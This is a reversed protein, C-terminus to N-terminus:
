PVVDLLQAESAGAANDFTVVMVGKAPTLPWEGSNVEIPVSASGHPGVTAFGGQSIASTWPNFRALGTGSKPPAGHFVDYSTYHYSLRPHATRSLCKDGPLCLQDTEVVLLATSSDTPASAAFSTGQGTALSFVFTNFVGSFDGATVIGDDVGVILYDDTGDGDVDVGIDFENVSANSWRNYGNVAFVMVAVDPDATPFSQVGIARVDNTANGPVRPDFLGWAYFDADGAIVGKNSVTATTTPNTGTTLKALRTSVDSLAHPVLYYPVRLAVNANDSASAPTLQVLGSVENFRSSNGATTAPVRLQVVLQADDNAPVTITSNSFSVSHASGAANAQAVKFTAPTSGNNHLKLQTTGIFDRSLEQYGFNLAVGLRGSSSRAVVQSKTSSAPQVLGTGGRSTGYDGVGSPIGTNLMAAKIDAVSWTPHAQRTLAAAGAVHPSAMSTGSLFEGGGGSGMATSFISVGPATIDPKAASDSTRPGASSFSAFKTFGPNAISQALTGVSSGDAQAALKAGDSATNSVPGAVGLFPISVTYPVGDDPNSTIPGEYPPLADSTNIMVVAAAGAQQGFIAKAVRACVGRNVVAITNPALAGFDAASCGLSLAGGSTRIVKLNYPGVPAVGNADIASMSIGNVNLTAGPFSATGDNAAVSIAGEATSPTGVLYASPGSNGASAVVVVGALAANTSAVADPDDKAGFSSGLSMNIVDMDNDVAWDIADVVVDTSGACGFVRVAYLDAKPAVGPGVNWAHTGITSLNYEGKFTAGSSDVGSGAATGAVHSGHGNCDLPNPDPHPIPQYNAASPDANYTDGVLDTGGKVRAASPGFLAPDAPAAEGAHAATYAAPTGPGGFNAHTYDIGTDIVAIKIGEGHVGLDQWAVPAGIFPVSNTNDPRKPYTFHVGLVGPLAALRDVKDRAIRVKFGNYASQYQAVVSGGLGNVSGRLANQAGKLTAKIQDKEARSLKHGANGQAVAVPDGSMEVVVTVQDKRLAAPVWHPSVAVVGPLASLQLPAATVTAATVTAAAVASWVSSLCLGARISRQM